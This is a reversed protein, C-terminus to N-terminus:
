SHRTGHFSISTAANFGKEFTATLSGGGSISAFDGTGGDLFFAGSYVYPSGPISVECLLGATKFNINGNATTITDGISNAPFCTGATGQASGAPGTTLSLTYTGAGISTGGIALQVEGASNSVCVPTLTGVQCTGGVTGSGFARFDQDTFVWAATHSAVFILGLGAMFTALIRKVWRLKM